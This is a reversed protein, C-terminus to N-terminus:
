KRKNIRQTKVMYIENKHLQFNSFTSILLYTGLLLSMKAVGRESVNEVLYM